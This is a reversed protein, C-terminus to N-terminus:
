DVKTRESLFGGLAAPKVPGPATPGIPTNFVMSSIFEILKDGRVAEHPAGEEGLEVRPAVVRALGKELRVYTKPDYSLFVSGENGEWGVAGGDPFTAVLHVNARKEKDEWQKQVYAPLNSVDLGEGERPLSFPLYYFRAPDAELAVCLLRTGPPFPTHAGGNADKERGWRPAMPRAWLGNQTPCSAPLAPPEENLLTLGSTSVEGENLKRAAKDLGPHLKPVVLLLRGQGLPDKDDVVYAETLDGDLQMPRLQEKPAPM